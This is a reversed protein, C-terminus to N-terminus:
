RRGGGRGRHGHYTGWRGGPRLKARIREYLAKVKPLAADAMAQGAREALVGSAQQLYPALLAVAAAALSFPDM